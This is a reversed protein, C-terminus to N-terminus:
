GGFVIPFDFLPFAVIPATHFFDFCHLFDMRNFSYEHYVTSLLLVLDNNYLDLLVRGGLDIISNKSVVPWDALSKLQFKTYLDHMFKRQNNVNAFYHKPNIKIKPFRWPFNPYLSSLLSHLNNSHYNLLSRGGQECCIKRKSISQWDELSKFQFQYYLQEMFTLRNNISKFYENHSNMFDLCEFEWAFNPYISRLLAKINNSYYFLCGQGGLETLKRVTISRWDDLSKMQYHSYVIDAFHQQNAIHHFYKRPYKMLPSTNFGEFNDNGASTNNDIENNQILGKKKLNQNLNNNVNSNMNYNVNILVPIDLKKKSNRKKNAIKENQFQWPYNPYVSSLLKQVDNAYYLSLLTSGGNQLFKTRSISRWDDMTKLQFQIFLDDMFIQQRHLRKFYLKPNTQLKHVQFQQNPYLTTLMTEVDGAYQNLLGRLTENCVWKERSIYLLDEVNHLNHKDLVKNILKQQKELANKLLKPTTVNDQPGSSNLKHTIERAFKQLKM